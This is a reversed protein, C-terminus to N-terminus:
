SLGSWLLEGSTLCFPELEPHQADPFVLVACVVTFGLIEIAPSARHAGCWVVTNKKAPGSACILMCVCGLESLMHCACVCM